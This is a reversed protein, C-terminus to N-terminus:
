KPYDFRGGHRGFSIKHDEHAVCKDGFCCDWEVDRRKAFEELGHYGPTSSNTFKPVHSPIKEKPSDRKEKSIENPEMAQVGGLWASM